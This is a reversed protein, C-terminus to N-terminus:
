GQNAELWADLQKQKEDIIKQLGATMMKENMEPIATDPDSVGYELAKKYENYVNTVATYENSVPTVDFLFGNAKSAVANNNFAETREWVDLENGEWVGAKFQAPATWTVSTVYGSTDSDVGDAYTYHGDEMVQYHVGEIGWCFLDTWEKSVYMYNLYQMAAVKDATNISISWPYGNSSNSRLFDPGAQVITMDYGTGNSEQMKIGPKTPTMYSAALGSSVATIDSTTDTLCDSSICGYEYLEHMHRCFDYYTESEFLNTVTTTDGWNELVGFSNGLSDASIWALSGPHLTVLEPHTDHAAKFISYATDEDTYWIESELDPTVDLLACADTLVDTRMAFAHRGQAYDCQNPVGYLVGGIRCTDIYQAGITDYIGQGYTQILDDEELDVLYDSAVAVPYSLGGVWVIDLQEGGAIQLTLQQNRSAYDTVQMEVSINLEPVTLANMEDVVMQLDKPSGNFAFWNVVLNVTDARDAIAQAAPDTGEESAASSAESSSVASSELSSSGESASSTNSTGNCSALSSVLLAAAILSLIRKKM